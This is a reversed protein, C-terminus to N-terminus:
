ESQSRRVPRMGEWGGELLSDELSSIRAVDVTLLVRRGSNRGRNEFVNFGLFSVEGRVRSKGLIKGKSLRFPPGTSQSSWCRM